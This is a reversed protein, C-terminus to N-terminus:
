SFRTEVIEKQLHKIYIYIYIYINVGGFEFMIIM